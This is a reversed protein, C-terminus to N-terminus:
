RKTDVRWSVEADGQLHQQKKLRFRFFFVGLCLHHDALPESHGAGNITIKKGFDVVAGKLLLVLRAPSHTLSHTLPRSQTSKQLSWKQGPTSINLISRPKPKKKKKKKRKVHSDMKRKEFCRRKPGDRVCPLSTAPWDLTPTWNSNQLLYDKRGRPRWIKKIGKKEWFHIKGCGGTRKLTM